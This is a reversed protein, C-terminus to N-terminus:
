MGLSIITGSFHEYFYTRAFPSRIRRPELSSRVDFFQSPQRGEAVILLWNEAITDEYKPLRLAKEDIRSQLAEVTLPAVWGARAVSWHAMAPSPVGLAHVFSIHHPLLGHLKEPGFAVAEGNSLNLRQVFIALAEATQDRHLERLDNGPSFGVSVHAPQVGAAEYLNRARAVIRQTISEQAQAVNGGVEHSIFLDTLEVGIRRNEFRVIFDPPETEEVIDARLQAVKFFRSLLIRERQKKQTANGM